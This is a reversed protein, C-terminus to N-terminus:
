EGSGPESGSDTIEMLEVDFVLTANPPIVGGAGEPGYALHPPIVLIRHGGAQMGQLGEDWGPIVVGQGLPFVIPDGNERSSDFVNGDPLSGTYHVAVMHGPEAAPGEGAELDRYLLGSPTEEFEDLDVGLEPAYDLDAPDAPAGPAPADMEAPEPGGEGCATFLLASLM